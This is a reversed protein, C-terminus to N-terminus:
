AVGAGRRGVRRRLGARGDGRPGAHRRGRRGCGPPDRASRRAPECSGLTPSGSSPGTAGAQEPVHVRPDGPRAGVAAGVGGADRRPARAARGRVRAGARWSGSRSRPSPPTAPTASPTGSTPSAASDIDDTLQRMRACCTSMSTAAAGRCSGTSAPPRTTSWRAAYGAERLLRYTREVEGSLVLETMIAEM